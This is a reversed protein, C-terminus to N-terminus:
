HVFHFPNVLLLLYVKLGHNLDLDRRLQRMEYDYDDLMYYFYRMEYYDLMNYYRLFIEDHTQVDHHHHIM